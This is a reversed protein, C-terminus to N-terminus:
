LSIASQTIQFGTQGNMYSCRHDDWEKASLARTADFEFKRERITLERVFIAQSQKLAGIKGPILVVSWVLQQNRM